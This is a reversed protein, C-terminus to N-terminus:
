ISIPHQIYPLIIHPPHTTNRSLNQTTLADGRFKSFARGSINTSPLRTLHFTFQRISDTSDVSSYAYANRTEQVFAYSSFLPSYTHIDNSRIRSDTDPNSTLLFYYHQTIPMYASQGPTTLCYLVKLFLSLAFFFSNCSALLLSSLCYFSTQNRFFLFTCHAPTTEFPLPSLSFSTETANRGV